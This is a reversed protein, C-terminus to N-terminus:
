GSASAAHHLPHHGRRHGVVLQGGVHAAVEVGQVAPVPHEAVDPPDASTSSLRFNDHNNYHIKHLPHIQEEFKDFQLFLVGLFQQSSSYYFIGHQPSQLIFVVVM